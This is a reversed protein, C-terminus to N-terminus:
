HLALTGAHGRVPYREGNETMGEGNLDGDFHFLASTDKDLEHPHRKPAFDSVYRASRYVRREDLVVHGLYRGTNLSGLQTAFATPALAM